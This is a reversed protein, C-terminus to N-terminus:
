EGEYKWIYGYASKRKKNCVASISGNDKIGLQIYIDSIKNWKKILNGNTDFQLISKSRSSLKNKYVHEMNESNTCWELNEVCNNIKNGDIHNIQPLMFPNDIFNEAVLRHVRFTKRKGNKICHLVEIDKEM